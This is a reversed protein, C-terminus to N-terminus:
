PSHTGTEIAIQKSEIGGFEKEMAAAITPVRGEGIRDGAANLCIFKSFRDGLDIGVAAVEDWDIKM